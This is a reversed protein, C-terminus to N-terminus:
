MYRGYLRWALSPSVVGGDLVVHVSAGNPVAVTGVPQGNSKGVPIPELHAETKPQAPLWTATRLSEAAVARVPEGWPVQYEAVTQGKAVIEREAFGSRADLAIRQSQAIATRVDSAGTVAAIIVVTQSALKHKVAIVFCGGAEDTNGTKIGVVDNGLIINTSPVEGVGPITISKQSVISALLNDQMLIEGVRVLDSATAVTKPSFGSADSITMTSIDHDRLYQNAAVTYKQASGYAWNALLDAMNNASMVLMANLAQRESIVDGATVPYVSGGKSIYEHYIAEDQATFTIDPGQQDPQLPKAELVMLATVMKATSAIPKPKETNHEDVVGFGVAGVAAQGATPWPLNLPAVQESPLAVLSPEVAAVPRSYAFGSILGLVLLTILLISGARKRRQQRRRQREM